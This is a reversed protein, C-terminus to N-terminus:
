YYVGKIYGERGDFDEYDQNNCKLTVQVIFVNKPYNFKYVKVLIYIYKWM